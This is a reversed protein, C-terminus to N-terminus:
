DKVYLYSFTGNGSGSPVSPIYFTSDEFIGASGTTASYTVAVNRGSLSFTCARKTTQEAGLYVFTTSQECTLDTRFVFSGATFTVEFSNDSTSFTYPLAHENIERLSFTGALERNPANSDGGCASILLALGAIWLM